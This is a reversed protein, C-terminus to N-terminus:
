ACTTLGDAVVTWERVRWASVLGGTVYPDARAFAEVDQRSASPRFVIAAGMPGATDSFAGGLGLAGRELAAQVHALHSPRLPARKAALEDLSSAGYDYFLISM